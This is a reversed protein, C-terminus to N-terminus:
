APRTVEMREVAVSGAPELRFGEAFEEYALVSAAPAGAAILARLPARILGSCAIVPPRRAAQLRRLAEAISSRISDALEPEIRFRSARDARELAGLLFEELAPDLLLAHIKGDRDALPSSITGAIARRVSGTLDGGEGGGEHNALAELIGELDRISVGERLLDQLVKHVEGLKVTGPIVEEVLAPARQKLDAILRSVEERTLLEAARLRAVAEVHAALAEAPAVLRCGAAAAQDARAEDVWVGPAGSAPDVAPAGELGELAEPSGLALLQGPYLRARGAASGRVLIRYEAPRLRRDDRVKVPPLVLGLDLAVRERLRDLRSLFGDGGDILGVLRYGVDLAIPDVALLARAKEESDPPAASRPKRSEAVAPEGAPRPRRAIGAAACLLAGAILPPGPLGAPLLAVLFAAAIFFTRGDAFVQVALDKGLDSRESTKTMLLAAAVSVMLAPVQNVLGEGVTLRTFVEAARAADLGYHLTGLAFGGGMCAFLILVGAIAEGRVFKSAGDMAGYFDAEEAIERRRRRADDEAILGAALEGDIALQKGPLADLTFRAAVETIRTTGKTIVVFQVLVIIAFLVFGVILSDGAIFGAFAQVVGGAAELGEAHARALILRTTALNLALRLFTALLLVSPFVSLDLPRSARAAGLLILLSGTLNAILLADIVPRPLPVLIMALVAVIGAAIALDSRRRDAAAAGGAAALSLSSM